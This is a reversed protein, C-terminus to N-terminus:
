PKPTNVWTIPIAKNETDNFLQVIYGSGDLEFSWQEVTADERTVTFGDTYFILDTAPNESGGGINITDALNEEDLNELIYQLEKRYKVIIDRLMVISANADGEKIEPFPLKIVPM